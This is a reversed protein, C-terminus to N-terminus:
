TSIMLLTSIAANSELGIYGYSRRTTGKPDRLCPDSMSKSDDVLDLFSVILYSNMDILDYRCTNIPFNNRHVSSVARKYDLISILKLLLDFM